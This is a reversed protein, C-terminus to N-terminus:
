GVRAAGLVITNNAQAAVEAAEHWTQQLPEVLEIAQRTLAADRNVNSSILATNVYTYLALLQAGGDWDSIRLSSQLEGLIDQAHLLQTSAIPWAAIMQAAEARRLDLLLRDYLMTLLQAPTATLIVSRNYRAIQAAHPNM